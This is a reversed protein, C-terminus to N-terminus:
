IGRFVESVAFTLGPFLPSQFNDDGSYVAAPEDVSESFHFVIIERAIPDVVWLEKVGAKAYVKRKLDKDLHLTSESLIEVVFDPAGEICRKGVISKRSHRFFLVDPQYVNTENLIVDLPAHFLRGVDHERLYGQIFWEINGSIQQHRWNPSPSMYLDGEILQHYPPGEPMAMYDHVTIALSEAQGM